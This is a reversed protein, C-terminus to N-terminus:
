NLACGELDSRRQGILLVLSGTVRTRLKADRHRPNTRRADSPNPLALNGSMIIRLAGLSLVNVGGDPSISRSSCGDRQLLTSHLSGLGVARALWIEGWACALPLASISLPPLLPPMGWLWGPSAHITPPCCHRSHSVLQM